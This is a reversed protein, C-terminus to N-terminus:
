KQHTRLSPRVFPRSEGSQQGALAVRSLDVENLGHVFDRGTELERHCGPLRARRTHWANIQVRFPFCCPVPTVCFPVGILTSLGAVNM